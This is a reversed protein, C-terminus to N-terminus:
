ATPIYYYFALFSVTKKKNSETWHRPVKKTAFRLVRRSRHNCDLTSQLSGGSM